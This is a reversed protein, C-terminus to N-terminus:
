EVNDNDVADEYADDGSIAALEAEYKAIEDETIGEEALSSQEKDCGAFAIACMVMLCLYISKM